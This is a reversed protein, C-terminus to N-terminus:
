LPRPAALPLLQLAGTSHCHLADSCGHRARDGLLQALVCGVQYTQMTTNVNFVNYFTAPILAPPGPPPTPPPRPPPAPPPTPPPRPPPPMPLAVLTNDVQQTQLHAPLSGCAGTTLM